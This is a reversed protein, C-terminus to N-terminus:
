RVNSEHYSVGPQVFRAVCFVQTLSNRTQRTSDIAKVKRRCVFLFGLTLIGQVRTITTELQTERKSTGSIPTTRRFHLFHWQHLFHWWITRKSKSLFWGRRNLIIIVLYSSKESQSQDVTYRTVGYVSALRSKETLRSNMFVIIQVNKWSEVLPWAWTVFCKRCQFVIWLCQFCVVCM